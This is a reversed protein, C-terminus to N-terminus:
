FLKHQMFIPIYETLHAGCVRVCAVVGPYVCVNLCVSMCVSLCVYVSMSLYIFHFLGVCVHM